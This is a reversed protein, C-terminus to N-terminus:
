MPRQSNFYSNFGIPLTCFQEKITNLVVSQKAVLVNRKGTIESSHFAGLWSDDEPWNLLLIQCQLVDRVHEQTVTNWEGGEQQNLGTGGLFVQGLDQTSNKM